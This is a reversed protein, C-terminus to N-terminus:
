WDLLNEQLTYTRTGSLFPWTVIVEVKAEKTDPDAVYWTRIERTYKTDVFSGVTEYSYKEDDKKIPPCGGASCATVDFTGGSIVTADIYCGLDAPNNPDVICPVLADALQTTGVLKNEDRMNRVVEIGEQALYFAVIEDQALRAAQVGQHALSMPAVIAILLVAIAIMTEIFTFGAKHTRYKM